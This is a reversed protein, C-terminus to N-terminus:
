IPIPEFEPDTMIAAAIQEAEEETDTWVRVFHRDWAGGDAVCVAWTIGLPEGCPTIYVPPHGYYPGPEDQRPVRVKPRRPRKATATRSM